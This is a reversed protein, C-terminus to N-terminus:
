IAEISTIKSSHLSDENVPGYFETKLVARVGDGLVYGVFEEGTDLVGRVPTGEKPPAKSVLTVTYRLGQLGIRHTLNPAEFTSYEEKGLTVVAYDGNAYTVRVKDGTEFVVKSM